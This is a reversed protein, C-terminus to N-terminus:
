FNQIKLSANRKKAGEVLEPYVEFFCFNPVGSSRMGEKIGLIFAIIKL